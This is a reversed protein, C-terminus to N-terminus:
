GDVGPLMAAMAAFQAALPIAPTATCRLCDAIAQVQVIEAWYDIVETPLGDADLAYRPERWTMYWYWRGDRRVQKALRVQVGAGDPDLVPPAPSDIVAYDIGGHQIYQDITQAAAAADLEAWTTM